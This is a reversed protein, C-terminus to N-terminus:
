APRSSCLLGACAMGVVVDTGEKASGEHARRNCGTATGSPATALVPLTLHLRLSGRPQLRHCDAAFRIPAHRRSSRLTPWNSETAVPTSRGNALNENM